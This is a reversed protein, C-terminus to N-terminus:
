TDAPRLVRQLLTAGAVPAAITRGLPHRAQLLAQRATDGQWWAGPVPPTAAPEAPRVGCVGAMGLSPLAPALAPSQPHPAAAALM